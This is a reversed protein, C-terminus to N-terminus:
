LTILMIIAMALMLGDEIITVTFTRMALMTDWGGAAVLTGTTVAIRHGLVIMLPKCTTASPAPLAPSSPADNDALRYHGLPELWRNLEDTTLGRTSEIVAQPPQLTVNVSGMDPHERLRKQIKTACNGCTMGTISYTLFTSM